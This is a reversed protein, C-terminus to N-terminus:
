RETIFLLWYIRRRRQSSEPNLISYSEERDLGLTLAFGIAERLYFWAAKSKNLNGYYSFLFFSELVTWEDTEDIFDRRQRSGLCEAVYDKASLRPFLTGASRSFCAFSDGTGRADEGEQFVDLNLQVIVAASMAAFFRLMSPTIAERPLSLTELLGHREVVPFVPYLRDLFVRTWPVFCSLPLHGRSECPSDGVAPHERIHQWDPDLDSLPAVEIAPGEEAGEPAPIEYYGVIPASLLSGLSPSELYQLRAADVWEDATSPFVALNNESVVGADIECPSDPSAASSSGM